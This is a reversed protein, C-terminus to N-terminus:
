GELASSNVGLKEPTWAAWVKTKRQPVQCVM